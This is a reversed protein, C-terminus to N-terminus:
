DEIFENDPNKIFSKTLPIFSRMEGDEVYALVKINGDPNEHWNIIIEVNYDADNYTRIEKGIPKDSILTKLEAYTKSRFVDLEQVLIEIAESNDM